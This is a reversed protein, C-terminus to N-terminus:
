DAWSRRTTVRFMRNPTNLLFVEGRKIQITMETELPLHEGRVTVYYGEAGARPAIIKTRLYEGDEMVSVSMGRFASINNSSLVGAALVLGSVLLVGASLLLMGRRASALKEAIKFDKLIFIVVSGACFGVPIFIDLLSRQGVETLTLMIFIV